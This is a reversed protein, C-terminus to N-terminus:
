AANRGGPRTVMEILGDCLLRASKEADARLRAMARLVPQAADRRTGDIIAACLATTLATQDDVAVVTGIASAPAIWETNAPIDSVVPYIGCAIAELLSISTGDSRSMTVYVDAERLAGRLVDDTVGGWFQVRGAHLGMLAAARAQAAPLLPGGSTFTCVWPPGDVPLAALAEIIAINNYVENFGRTCILRVPGSSRAERPVFRDLDVGLCLARVFQDGVLRRAAAALHEGNALVLGAGQLSWRAASRRIGEIRLVDSGMLYVGYPRAGSLRLQLARGGGYLALLADYRRATALRGLALATTVYRVQGRLRSSLVHTPVARRFRDLADAQWPDAVSLYYGEVDPVEFDIAEVEAGASRLRLAVDRAWPSGLSCVLGVRM